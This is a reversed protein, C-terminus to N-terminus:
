EFNGACLQQSGVCLWVAGRVRDHAHRPATRELATIDGRWRM